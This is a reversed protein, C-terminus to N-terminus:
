CCATMTTMSKTSELMWFDEFCYMVMVTMSEASMCAHKTGWKLVWAFKDIVQASADGQAQPPAVAQSSSTAPTYAQNAYVEPVQQPQQQQAYPNYMQGPAGM